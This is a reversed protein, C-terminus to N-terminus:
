TWRRKGALSPIYADLSAVNLWTRLTRIEEARLRTCRCRAPLLKHEQETVSCHVVSRGNYPRFANEVVIAVVDIVQRCGARV